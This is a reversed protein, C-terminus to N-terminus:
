SIASLYQFYRYVGIDLGKILQFLFTKSQLIESSLQHTYYTTNCYSQGRNWIAKRKCQPYNTTKKVKKVNKM